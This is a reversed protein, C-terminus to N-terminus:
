ASHKRSIVVMLWTSGIRFEALHELDIAQIRQDNVYTGNTSDLDCLRVVDETLGVACHLPSVQPDNIEIDAGGGAKGISTKAKTLERTLGTSPGATVSVTITRDNPLALGSSLNSVDLLSASTQM